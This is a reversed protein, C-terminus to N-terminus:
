GVLYETLKTAIKNMSEESIRDQNPVGLYSFVNAGRHEEPMDAMRPVVHFHVHSHNPLEAFQMVYTKSCGVIERLGISIKRLLPGLELAEDDTLEDISAIHRRLVVVVWGLLSTNFAHAIDWYETRTICDWLPASGSDRAQILKCTDCNKM